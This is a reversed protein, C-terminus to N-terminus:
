TVIPRLNFAPECYSTLRINQQSQFLIWPLRLMSLDFRRRMQRFRQALTM